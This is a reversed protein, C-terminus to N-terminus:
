DDWTFAVSQDIDDALEPDGSGYDPIDEYEVSGSNGRIFGLRARAIADTVLTVAEDSAPVRPSAVVIWEDAGDDASDFDHRDLLRVSSM